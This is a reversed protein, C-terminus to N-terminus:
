IKTYGGDVLLDAGTIYSAEDSALFSIANAVESSKGLRKLITAESETKVFNDWNAGKLNMVYRTAPTDITGPSITNVRINFKALDLALNRTMQLIAAKTSAYVHFDPQAIWSSMSALNVISCPTKNKKMEEVAYKIMLHYGVVNVEFSKMYLDKSAGLGEPIFIAANNVLVDIKGFIKVTEKSVREADKENSIDAKIFHADGNLNKIETLTKKGNEENIDCVIVKAGENVFKYCTSQGIGSAGGTVIAVKNNLKLNNKITSSSFYKKIEGRIVQLNRSCFSSSVRLM